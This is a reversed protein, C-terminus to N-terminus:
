CRPLLDTWEPNMSEILQIKRSRRWGKLQKERTIAAYVDNTTEYYVLEAIQHRAAYGQAGSRHQAVRYELDNTVGIYLQGSRSALVYVWYQRM